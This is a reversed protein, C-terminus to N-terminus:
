SRRSPRYTSSALGQSYRALFGLGLGYLLLACGTAFGRQVWQNDSSIVSRFPAELVNAAADVDRQMQPAHADGVTAAATRTPIGGNLEAVQHQSAGGIQDVAFLAFAAIM